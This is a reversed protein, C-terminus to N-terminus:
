NIKSVQIAVKESRVSQVAHNVFYADKVVVRGSKVSETAHTFHSGKYNDSNYYVEDEDIVARTLTIIDEYDLTIQRVDYSCPIECVKAVVARFLEAAREVILSGASYGSYGLLDPKGKHYLKCGQDTFDGVVRYLTGYLNVAYNTTVPPPPPTKVKLHIRGSHLSKTASEIPTMGGSRSSVLHSHDDALANAAIDNLDCFEILVQDVGEPRKVRALKDVIECYLMAASRTAPYGLIYTGKNLKEYLCDFSFDDAFRYLRTSYLVPAWDVLHLRYRSPMQLRVKKDMVAFTTRTIDIGKKGQKARDDEIADCAVSVIDDFGLVCPAVDDKGEYMVANLREVVVHLLSAAEGIRKPNKELGFVYNKDMYYRECGELSIDDCIWYMKQEKKITENENQQQPPNRKRRM